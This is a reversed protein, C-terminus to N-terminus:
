KKNYFPYNCLLLLDCVLPLSVLAASKAKKALSLQSVNDKPKLKKNLMLITYAGTALSIGKVGFYIRVPKSFNCAALALNTLAGISAVFTIDGYSPVLSAPEKKESASISAVICLVSIILNKKM